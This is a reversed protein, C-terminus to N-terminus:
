QAADSEGERERRWHRCMSGSGTVCMCKAQENKICGEASYERRWQQLSLPLYHYLEPSKRQLCGIFNRGFAWWGLNFIVQCDKPSYGASSQILTLEGEEYQMSKTENEQIKNRRTEYEQAPDNQPLVARSCPPACRRLRVFLVVSCILISSSAHPFTQSDSQESVAASIIPERTYLASVSHMLFVVSLWSLTRIDHGSWRGHTFVYIIDTAIVHLLPLLSKYAPASPAPVQKSASSEREKEREGEGMGENEEEVRCHQQRLCFIDKLM